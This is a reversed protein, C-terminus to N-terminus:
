TNIRRRYTYYVYPQKVSLRYADYVQSIVPFFKTNV